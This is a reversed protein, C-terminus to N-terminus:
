GAKRQQGWNARRLEEILREAVLRRAREIARETESRLSAIDQTSSRGVADIRESPDPQM